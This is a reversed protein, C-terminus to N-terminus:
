EFTKKLFSIASEKDMVEGADQAEMVAKQMEVIFGTKPNKNPFLAIIERGDLLSKPGVKAREDIFDQISKM